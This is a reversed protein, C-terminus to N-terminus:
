SRYRYRNRNPYMSPYPNVEPESIKHVVEDGLQKFCMFWDLCYKDENVKEMNEMASEYTTPTLLIVDDKPQWNAPTMIKESDVKQLATIMRKIENIDRGITAPYYLVSRVKGEQDIIYVANVPHISSCVSHILGYKQAIEMSTDAILPFTIDVHKIDKWSLEKIKRLWAIHSYISDSSIGIVEIGLAKLENMASAIIMFESTCVPTFDSPYGLLVVWRGHYDQPFHLEGQTTIAHFEPASEGISPIRIGKNDEM